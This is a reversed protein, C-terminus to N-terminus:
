GFTASVLHLEGGAYLIAQSLVVEGPEPADDDTADCDFAFDGDGNLVRAWTPVGTNTVLPTGDQALTLAGASVVGCPKTLTIVALASAGPTGGSAPRTGGYIVIKANDSGLDLWDRRGTLAAENFDTSQSIM